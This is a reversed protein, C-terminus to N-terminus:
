VRRPQSDAFTHNTVVGKQRAESAKEPMNAEAYLSAITTWAQGVHHPRTRIFAQGERSAMNVQVKLGISIADELLHALEVPKGKGRAAPVIEYLVGFLIPASDVPKANFVSRAAKVAQEVQGLEAFARALRLSDNVRRDENHTEKANQIAIELTFRADAWRQAVILSDAYKWAQAPDIKDANYGVLLKEAAEKMLAKYETDNIERRYVHLMLTDSISKIQDRITDAPLAGVDAPDNPNPLISTKCGIVLVIIPLLALLRFRM